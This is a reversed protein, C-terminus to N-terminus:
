QPAPMLLIQGPTIAIGVMGNLQQILTYKLASGLFKLALSFLTDQPQVIVQVPAAAPNNQIQALVMVATAYQIAQREAAAQQRSIYPDALASTASSIVGQCATILDRLNQQDQAQTLLDPATPNAM